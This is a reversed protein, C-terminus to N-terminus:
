YTLNISLAFFDNIKKLLQRDTKAIAILNNNADYLGVESIRPVDASTFTPNTSKGFEGRGAVCTINQQISTSVSNFSLTTGTIGGYANVITQNTIVLFGKDLYAIGVVTDVNQSTNNNTTRNILKKGNVSFPKTSNFGTAWSFAGNGGNPTMINDSVLFAVNGFLKADNSQDNYNGDLTTLPVNISEFTSFITFGTSVGTLILKINKGDLAEGYQNNNIGIVLINTASIGSLATNSFGGNSTTIGTFRNDDISNLPLNFTYFLNVLPDSSGNNRNIVNQTLNSSTLTNLGVSQYTTTVTSSQPEVLKQTNNSSNVILKSKLDIIQGANNSSSSHTGINGAISPVQGSTLPLSVNYNADSDGFSFYTILNNTNAIIKQRGIPTLKASLTLNTASNIFGM